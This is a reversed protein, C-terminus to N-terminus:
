ARRDSARGPFGTASIGAPVMASSHFVFGEHPIRVAGTAAFPITKERRGSRWRTTARSAADPFLEPGIGGAATEVPRRRDVLIETEEAGV